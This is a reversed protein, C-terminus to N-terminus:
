FRLASDIKAVLEVAGVHPQADQAAHPLLVELSPLISYSGLRAPMFRPVIDFLVAASTYGLVHNKPRTSGREVLQYYDSLGLGVSLPLVADISFDQSAFLRFRPALQIGAFTGSNRGDRAGKLENAIILSPFFGRFVREPQGKTWFVDDTLDLKLLLEYVDEFSGNPSSYVVLRLDARYAQGEVALGGSLRSEYWAAPGKGVARNKDGPHVSFWFGVPIILKFEPSDHLAVDLNSNSQWLFGKDSQLLGRFFYQNPAGSSMTMRLSEGLQEAQPSEADALVGTAVIPQSVLLSLALLVFRRM